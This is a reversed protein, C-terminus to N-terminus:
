KKNHQAAPANKAHDAMSLYLERMTVARARIDDPADTAMTIQMLVDAADAMKGERADLLSLLELASYRWVSKKRTLPDIERRLTAPDATDLQRQLRLLTALDRYPKDIGGMDEIAAYQALAKDDKHQESYIQAAAFRALMAHNKNSLAAFKVLADATDKGGGNEITLLAETQALNTQHQQARWYSLGATCIISLIVGAVIWAGNEKWFAELRQRRLDDDIEDMFGAM